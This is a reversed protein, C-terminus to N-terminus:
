LITDHKNFFNFMFSQSTKLFNHFVLATASLSYPKLTIIGQGTLAPNCPLRNPDIM